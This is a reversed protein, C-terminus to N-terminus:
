TAFFQDFEPNGFVVELSYKAFLLCESGMIDSNMKDVKGVDDIDFVFHNAYGDLGNGGPASYCCIYEIGPDDKWRQGVEMMAQRCKERQEKPAQRYVSGMTFRYVVRLPKDMIFGGGLFCFPDASWRGFRERHDSTPLVYGV